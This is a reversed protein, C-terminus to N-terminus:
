RWRANERYWASATPTFLMVLATIYLAMRICFSAATQWPIARVRPMLGFLLVVVVLALVVLVAIVWRAWGRGRWVATFIAYSIGAAVALGILTMAVVIAVPVGAPLVFLGYLSTVASIAFGTWLLRVALVVISPRELSVPAEPDAVTTAPPAYPNDNM